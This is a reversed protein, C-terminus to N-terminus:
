DYWRWLAFNVCLLYLAVAALSVTTDHVYNILLVLGLAASAFIGTLVVIFRQSSAPNRTTANM